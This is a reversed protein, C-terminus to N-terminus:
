LSSGCSTFDLFPTPTKNCQMDVSTGNQSYLIQNESELQQMIHTQHYAATAEQSFLDVQHLLPASQPQVDQVDATHVCLLILCWLFVVGLSSLNGM